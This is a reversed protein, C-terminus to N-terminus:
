LRYYLADQVFVGFIEKKTFSLKVWLVGHLRFEHYSTCHGPKNILTVENTNYPTIRLMM